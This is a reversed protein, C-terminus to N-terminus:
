IMHHFSQMVFTQSMLWGRGWQGCWNCFELCQKQNGVWPTDVYFSCNEAGQDPVIDFGAFCVKYYHLPGYMGKVPSLVTVAYNVLFPSLDSAKYGGVYHFCGLSWLVRMSVALFCGSSHDSCGVCACVRSNEAHESKDLGQLCFWKM